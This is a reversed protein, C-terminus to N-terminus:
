KGSADSMGRWRISVFVLFPPLFRYKIKLDNMVDIVLPIKDPLAMLLKVNPNGDSNEGKFRNLQMIWGTSVSGSVNEMGTSKSYKVSFSNM